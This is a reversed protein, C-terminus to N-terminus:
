ETAPEEAPEEEPPAPEEAPEEEPPAEEKKGRKVKEKIVAVTSAGCGPCVCIRSNDPFEPARDVPLTEIVETGEPNQVRGDANCQVCKIDAM